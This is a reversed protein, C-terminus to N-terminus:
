CADSQRNTEIQIRISDLADDMSAFAALKLGGFQPSKQFCAIPNTEICAEHNSVKVVHQLYDM